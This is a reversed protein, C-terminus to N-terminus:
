AAKEAAAETNEASQAAEALGPDEALKADVEDCTKLIAAVWEPTLLRRWMSPWLTVPFRQLGKVMVKLGDPSPSVAVPKEKKPSKKLEDLLALAKVADIKGAALLEVIEKENM